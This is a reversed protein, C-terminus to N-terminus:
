TWLNWCLDIFKIFNWVKSDFGQFGGHLHNKGENPSVSFKQNDIIFQSNAIRNAVRGVMANIYDVDSFYKDYSEFGLVVDESSNSSLRTPIKLSTIRAGYNLIDIEIGFSNAIKFLELEQENHRFLITRSFRKVSM